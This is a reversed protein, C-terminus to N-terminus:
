VKKEEFSISAGLLVYSMVDSWKAEVTVSAGSPSKVTAKVRHEVTYTTPYPKLGYAALDKDVFFTYSNYEPRNKETWQDRLMVRGSSTGVKLGTITQTYMDYDGGMRIGDAWNQFGCVVTYDGDVDPIIEIYQGILVASGWGLRRTWVSHGEAVMEEFSMSASVKPPRIISKLRELLGIKWIPERKTIEYWRTAVKDRIEIAKDILVMFNDRQKM